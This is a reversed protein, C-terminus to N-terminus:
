ARTEMANAEAARTEAARTEAAKNEAAEGQAARTQAQAQRASGKLKGLLAMLQDVEGPELGACMQGVWAEHRGAMAHFARRGEDTLRVIQARRDGPAPTRTILGESALREALLTINGNSVMMRRSIEGLTLGDPARDLQALLDFRPLTVAFTERLRRRIESEMFNTCTLLRLWLRLRAHRAEPAAEAAPVADM